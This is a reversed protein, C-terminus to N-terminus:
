GGFMRALRQEYEEDTKRRAQTTAKCEKCKCSKPDGGPRIELRPIVDRMAADWIDFLEPDDTVIRYGEGQGKYEKLASIVRARPYEEAYHQGTWWPGLNTPTGFVPEIGREQCLGNVVHIFEMFGHKWQGKLWEDEDVRFVKTSM